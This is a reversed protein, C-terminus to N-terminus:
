RGLPYDTSEHCSSPQRPDMTAIIRRLEEIAESEVFQPALMRTQMETLRNGIM